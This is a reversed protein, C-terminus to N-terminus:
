FPLSGSKDEAGEKPTKFYSIEASKGYKEDEKIKTKAECQLGIMDDLSELSEPNHYGAGKLFSKLQGLGIEVAVPNPNEINFNMFLITGSKLERLKAKIYRGTGAKTDHVTAEQCKFTYTGAPLVDYKSETKVNSLDIFSM